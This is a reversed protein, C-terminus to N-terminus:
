GRRWMLDIHNWTSRNEAKSWTARFVNYGSQATGKWGWGVRFGGKNLAGTVGSVPARGFLKSAVGFARSNFAARGLVSGAPFRIGGSAAGIATSLGLGSWSFQDTGAKEAAYAAAGAVAGVAVACVVLIGCAVAGLVGAGIATWKGVSRWDIGWKGSLDYKNIPDVPYTYANANGGPIPDVSLFRGTLPSYLRVGMLILGNVTEASRQKAGLWEYRGPSTSTTRNGYEDMTYTALGAWTAQTAGDAVPITMVVDGHLDVVQVVRGGTATTSVAIDGEVGSVYRTVNSPATTDEVIWAPEDSESAYHNV